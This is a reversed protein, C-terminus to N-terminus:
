ILTNLVMFPATDEDEYNGTKLDRAADVGSRKRLRHLEGKSQNLIQSCQTSMLKLGHEKAYM